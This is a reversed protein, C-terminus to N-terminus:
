EKLLEKARNRLANNELTKAGKADSVAEDIMVAALEDVKISLSLNILLNPMANGKALVGGPRVISVEFNSNNEQVALLGNEAEGQVWNTCMHFRMKVLCAKNTRSNHLFWMKKDTERNAFKGSLYVFRFVKGKEKLPPALSSAFAEAAACTYGIEVKKCAELDPHKHPPAGM